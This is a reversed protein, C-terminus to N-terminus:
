GDMCPDVVLGAIEPLFDKRSVVKEGRCTSIGIKNMLRRKGKGAGGGRPGAEGERGGQRGQYERWGEGYEECVRLVKELGCQGAFIASKGALEEWAATLRRLDEEDRPDRWRRRQWARAGDAGQSGRGGRRREREGGMLSPSSSSAASAAASSSSSSGDKARSRQQRVKVFGSREVLKYFEIERLGHKGIYPDPNVVSSPCCVGLAHYLSYPGTRCVSMRSPGSLPAPVTVQPPLTLSAPILLLPPLPPRVM